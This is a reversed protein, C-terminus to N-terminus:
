AKPDYHHHIQKKDVVCFVDRAFSGANVVDIRMNDGDLWISIMNGITFLSEGNAYESYTSRFVFHGSRLSKRYAIVDAEVKAMQPSVPSIQGTAAMCIALIGTMSVTM